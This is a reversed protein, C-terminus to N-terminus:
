SREHHAGGPERPRRRGEPVRRQHREPQEVGQDPHGRM